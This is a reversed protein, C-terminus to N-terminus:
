RWPGDTEVLGCLKGDIMRLELQERIEDKQAETLNVPVGYMTGSEIVGIWEGLHLHVAMSQKGEPVDLIVECTPLDFDLSGHAFVPVAGPEDMDVPPSTASSQQPEDVAVPAVAATIPPTSRVGSAPVPDAVPADSASLDCATSLIALLSLTTLALL